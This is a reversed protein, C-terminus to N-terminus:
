YYARSVRELLLSDMLLKNARSKPIDYFAKNTPVFITIDEDENSLLVQLKTM